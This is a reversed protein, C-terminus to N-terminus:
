VQILSFGMTLALGVAALLATLGKRNKPIFMDVLLLVCAWVTLLIVPLITTFDTQTM